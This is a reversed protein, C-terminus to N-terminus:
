KNLHCDHLENIVDYVMAGAYINRLEQADTQANQDVIHMPNNTSQTTINASADTKALEITLFNAVITTDNNIADNNTINNFLRRRVSVTDANYIIRKQKKNIPQSNTPTTMKEPTKNLNEDGNNMGHTVNFFNLGRM